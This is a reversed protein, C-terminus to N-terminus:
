VGESNTRSGDVHRGSIRESESAMITVSEGGKPGVPLDDIRGQATGLPHYNKGGKRELFFCSVKKNFENEGKTQKRRSLYKEL